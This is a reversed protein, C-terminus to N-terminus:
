LIIGLKRLKKIKAEIEDNSYGKERFEMRASYESGYWTEYYSHFRWSLVSMIFGFLMSLGLIQVRKFGGLGDQPATYAVTIIALILFLIIAFMVVASSPLGLVSLRGKRIMGVGHGNMQTTVMAMKMCLFMSTLLGVMITFTWDGDMIKAYGATVFLIIAAVIFPNFLIHVTRSHSPYKMFHSNMLEEYTIQRKKNSLTSKM